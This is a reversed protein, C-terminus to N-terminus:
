DVEVSMILGHRNETVAHASLCLLAPQGGGKRYLRAELNTISRHTANSRKQGRFDM